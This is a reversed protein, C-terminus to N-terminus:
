AVPDLVVVPITRSGAREPYQDYPPYSEAMRRWLRQREEGAFPSPSRTWRRTAPIGKGSGSAGRWNPDGDPDMGLWRRRGIQGLSRLYECWMPNEPRSVSPRKMTSNM